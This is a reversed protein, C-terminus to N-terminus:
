QVRLMESCFPCSNSSLFNYLCHAAQFQHWSNCGTGAWPSFHSSGVGVARDVLLLPVWGLHKNSASKHARLQRVHIENLNRANATIQRAEETAMAVAINAMLLAQLNMHAPTRSLVTLDWVHVLAHMHSQGRVETNCSTEVLLTEM